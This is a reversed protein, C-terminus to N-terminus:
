ALGHPALLLHLARSSRLGNWARIAENTRRPNLGAARFAAHPDHTSRM